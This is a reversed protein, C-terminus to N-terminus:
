IKADTYKVNPKNNQVEGLEKEKAEENIDKAMMKVDDVGAECCRRCITCMFRYYKDYFSFSLVLCIVNITFDIGWLAESFTFPFFGLILGTSCIMVLSLILIKAVVYQLEYLM